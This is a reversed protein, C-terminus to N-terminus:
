LQAAVAATDIVSWVSRIRGGDFEYFVNECFQVRRGNVPLGFLMGVPTCEFALRSAVMPPECVLLELVFTLDPIARFDEVLLARYGELGLAQGNRRVDEDVYKGLNGWDQRNLCDIYGRYIESLDAGTM